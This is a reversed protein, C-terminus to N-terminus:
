TTDGGFMYRRQEDTLKATIGVIADAARDVVANYEGFMDPNTCRLTFAIEACRMLDRLDSAKIKSDTM